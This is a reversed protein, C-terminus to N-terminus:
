KKATFSLIWKDQFIQHTTIYKKITTPSCNFFKGAKRISSFTNVLSGDSDYVFITTGQAASMKAITEATPVKGFNPNKAGLNAISLKARITPDAMAKSINASMKARTEPTVEKKFM